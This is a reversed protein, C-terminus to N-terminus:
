LLAVMFFSSGVLGLSIMGAGAVELAAGSAIAPCALWDPTRRSSDFLLRRHIAAATAANVNETTPAETPSAEDEAVGACTAGAAPAAPPPKPPAAPPPDLARDPGAEPPATPVTLVM